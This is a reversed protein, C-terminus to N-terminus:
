GASAAQSGVSGLKNLITQQFQGVTMSPSINNAALLSSSVYTSISDGPSNVSAAALASGYTPGFEYYDRVQANTPNAVGVNQLAAVGDAVYQAAAYAENGPDMKGALSTDINLDPNAAAVEQMMQQYTGDAMQFVGSITGGTAPPGANNTCGSEMLCVSALAEPTIGAAAAADDAQSAWSQANM